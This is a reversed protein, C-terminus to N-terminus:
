NGAFSVDAIWYALQLVYVYLTQKVTSSKINCCHYM